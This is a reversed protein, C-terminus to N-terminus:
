DTPRAVFNTTTDGEIVYYRVGKLDLALPPLLGFQEDAPLGMDTLLMNGDAEALRPNAARGLTSWIVVAELQAMMRDIEDSIGGAVSLADVACITGDDNLTMLIETNEAGDPTVRLFAGDRQPTENLPYQGQDLVTNWRRVFEPVTMGLSGPDTLAQVLGDQGSLGTLPEPNPAPTPMPSPIVPAPTVYVILPTAVAAATPARTVYVIIPTPNPQAPTGAACGAMLSAALLVIAPKM